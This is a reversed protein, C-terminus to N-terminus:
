LVARLAAIASLAKVAARYGEQASAGAEEEDNCSACWPERCKDGRCETVNTNTFPEVVELADLALRAADKLKDHDAKVVDFWAQLDRNAATLADREVKHSMAMSDAAAAYADIEREQRIASLSAANLDSRLADREAKIGPIADIEYQMTELQAALADREATLSDRERLAEVCAVHHADSWHTLDQAAFMAIVQKEIETM